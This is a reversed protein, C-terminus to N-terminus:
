ALIHHSGLLVETLEGDAAAKMCRGLVFNGTLAVIAEGAADSQIYEGEDVTAGAVVKAVGAVAITAAKGAADPKNLLVGIADGGAASVADVQNDAAIDVFRFQKASLDAGAEKTITKLVENTAM